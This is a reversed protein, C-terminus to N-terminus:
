EFTLIWYVPHFMARWRAKVSKFDASAISILRELLLPMVLSKASAGVREYHRVVAHLSALVSSLSALSQALM